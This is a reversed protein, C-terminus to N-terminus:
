ALNLYNTLKPKNIQSDIYDHKMQKQVKLQTDVSSLFSTFVLMFICFRFTLDTLYRKTNQM